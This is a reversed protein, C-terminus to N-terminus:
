LKFDNPQISRILSFHTNVERPLCFPPCVRVLSFNPSYITQGSDMKFSFHFKIFSGVSMVAVVKPLCKLTEGCRNFRIRESSPQTSFFIAPQTTVLSPFVTPPLCYSCSVDPDNNTIHGSSISFFEPRAEANETVDSTEVMADSFILRLIM